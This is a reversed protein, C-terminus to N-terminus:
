HASAAGALKALQRMVVSAADFREAESAWDGAYVLKHDPRLKLRREYTAIFEILAAPNAFHDNRFSVVAGKPGVDLKDVGAEVCLHKLTVINLLNEVEPPLPGFRDILEAAFADMEARTVLSAVRRYLGLRTDLDAVYHEPILVPTGLAITPSWAQEDEADAEAGADSTAVAGSLDAKDRAAAVAEELMQQYLEVGVEKVHGSQEDGLLNGAGRIDMDHSALSFGAGLGDLTQMVDLRRKANATVNYDAPLTLYAYARTKSRGVRGRCSISSPSASGIPM